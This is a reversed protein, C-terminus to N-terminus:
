DETNNDHGYEWEILLDLYHKAKLLDDLGDKAAHRCIYKIANGQLWNLENRYIFESPQIAMKKYHV